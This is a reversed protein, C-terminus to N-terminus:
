KLFDFLSNQSIKAYAQQAADRNILLSQIQTVIAALDADGLDSVRESTAMIRQDIAEKQLEAKNLQAGM